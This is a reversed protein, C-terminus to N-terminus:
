FLTFLCFLCFNFWFFLSDIGCWPQGIDEWISDFQWLIPCFHSKKINPELVNQSASGFSIKFLEIQNWDSGSSTSIHYGQVGASPVGASVVFHSVWAVPNGLQTVLNPGYSFQQIFSLLFLYRCGCSMFQLFFFNGPEMKCNQM